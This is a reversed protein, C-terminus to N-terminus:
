KLIGWALGSGTHATFSVLALKPLDLDELPGYSLVAAISSRLSFDLTTGPVPLSIRLGALLASSPVPRPPRVSLCKEPRHGSSRRSEVVNQRICLFFVPNAADPSHSLTVVKLRAHPRESERAIRRGVRSRNTKNHS